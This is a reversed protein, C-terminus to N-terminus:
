MGPTEGEPTTMADGGMTMMMPVAGEEGKTEENICLPEQLTDVSIPFQEQLPQPEDSLLTTHNMATAVSDCSQGECVQLAQSSSAVPEMVPLAEKMEQLNLADCSIEKNPQDEFSPMELKKSTSPSSSIKLEIIEDANGPTMDEGEVSNMRLKKASPSHLM